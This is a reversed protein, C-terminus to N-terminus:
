VPARGEPHQLQDAIATTILNTIPAPFWAWQGNPNCEYLWWCGDQDLGFDFAGFTLGFADLYSRVGAAVSSPTDILTYALHSYHRRWDVGPSGDIRVAFLHEGVVTLRIDAVKDM